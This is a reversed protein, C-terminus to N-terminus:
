VSDTWYVLYLHVYLNGSGGAVFNLKPATKDGGISAGVLAFDNNSPQSWTFPLETKPLLNAPFNSIYKGSNAQVNNIQAHVTVQTSGGLTM